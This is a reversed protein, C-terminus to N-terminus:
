RSVRKIGAKIKKTYVPTDEQVTKRVFGSKNKNTFEQITAYDLDSGYQGKTKEKMEVSAPFSNALAGTKRPAYRATKSSSEHLQRETEESVADIYKELDLKGKLSSSINVNFNINM